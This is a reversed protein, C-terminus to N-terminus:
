ALRSAPVLAFCHTAPATAAARKSTSATTPRPWASMRLSTWARRPTPSRSYASQWAGLITTTECRLWGLKRYREGYPLYSGSPHQLAVPSVDLGHDDGTRPHAREVFPGVRVAIDQSQGPTWPQPDRVAALLARLQGVAAQNKPSLAGPGHDCRRFLCTM